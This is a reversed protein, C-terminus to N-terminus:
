EFKGDELVEHTLWAGPRKGLDAAMKGVLSDAGEGELFAVSSMNYM